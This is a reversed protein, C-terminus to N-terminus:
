HEIFRLRKQGSRSLADVKKVTIAGLLGKAVADAFTREPSIRVQHMFAQAFSTEDFDKKQIVWLEYRAQQSSDKPTTYHLEFDNEVIDAYLAFVREWEPTQLFGGPVSIKDLMARGCITYQRKWPDGDYKTYFAVDGMRYRLLPSPNKESWLMTVVIEGERDIEEIVQDTEVDVLEMYIETTTNFITGWRSDFNGASTGLESDHIETAGYRTYIFANPFVAQLKHYHASTVREGFTIIMEIQECLGYKQLLPIAIDYGYLWCGFTNIQSGAVLSISAEM